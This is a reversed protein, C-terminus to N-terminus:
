RSAGVAELREGGGLEGLFLVVVKDLEDRAGCFLALHLRVHDGDDRPLNLCACRKPRSVKM